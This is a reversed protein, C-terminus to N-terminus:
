KLPEVQDIMIGGEYFKYNQWDGRLKIRVQYVEANAPIILRAALHSWEGKWLRNIPHFLPNGNPDLEVIEKDCGAIKVRVGIGATVHGPVTGINEMISVKVGKIGQWLASDYANLGTYYVTTEWYMSGPPFGSKAAWRGMQEGFIILCGNTDHDLNSGPLSNEMNFFPPYENGQDDFVGTIKWGQVTGDDFDYVARPVGACNAIVCLVLLLSIWACTKRKRIWDPRELM